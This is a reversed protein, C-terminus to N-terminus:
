HSGSVFRPASTSTSVSNSLSPQAQVIQMVGGGGGASDQGVGGSLDGIVLGETEGPAQIDPAHPAAAEDALCAGVPSALLLAGILSVIRITM